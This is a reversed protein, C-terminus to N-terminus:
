TASGVKIWFNTYASYNFEELRKLLTRDDAENVYCSVANAYARLGAQFEEKTPVYVQHNKM